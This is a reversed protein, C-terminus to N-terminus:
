DVWVKAEHLSAMKWYKRLERRRLQLDPPPIKGKQEWDALTRESRNLQRCIEEGSIYVEGGLELRDQGSRLSLWEEVERRNWRSEKGKGGGVQAPAPFDGRRIMRAFFGYRSSEALGIAQLVESRPMLDTSDTTKPLDEVM